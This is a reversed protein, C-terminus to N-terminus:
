LTATLESYHGCSRELKGPSECDAIKANKFKTSVFVNAPKVDRHIIGVSHLYLLGAATDKLLRLAEWEDYQLEAIGDKYFATLDGYCLESIIQLPQRVWGLIRLTCPHDISATPHSRTPHM